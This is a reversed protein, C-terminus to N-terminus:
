PYGILTYPANKIKSVEKQFRILESQILQRNMLERAIRLGTLSTEPTVLMQVNELAAKRVGEILCDVNERTTPKISQQWIGIELYEPRPRTKGSIKLRSISIKGKTKLGIMFLCEPLFDINGVKAVCRGNILVTIRSGEYPLGPLDDEERIVSVTKINRKEM